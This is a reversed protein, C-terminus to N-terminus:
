ALDGLTEIYREALTWLGDGSNLTREVIDSGWAAHFVASDLEWGFSAKSVEADVWVNPGGLTLSIEVHIKVDLSLPWEYIADTADQGEYDVAQGEREADLMASATANYSEFSRNVYDTTTSM